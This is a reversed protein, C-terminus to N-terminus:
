ESRRRDNRWDVKHRDKVTTDFRDPDAKYYYGMARNRRTINGCSGSGEVMGVHHEHGFSDIALACLCNRCDRDCNQRIGKKIAMPKDCRYSKIM